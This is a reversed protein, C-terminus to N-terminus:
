MYMEVPKSVKREVRQREAGIDEPLDAIRITNDYDIYIVKRNATDINLIRDRPIYKGDIYIYERKEGDIVIYM